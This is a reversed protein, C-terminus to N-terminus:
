CFPQYSERIADERHNDGNHNEVQFRRRLRREGRKKRKPGRRQTTGHAIQKNGNDPDIMVMEQKKGVFGRRSEYPPVKGM